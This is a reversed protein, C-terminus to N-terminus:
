DTEPKKKTSARIPTVPGSVLEELTEYCEKIKETRNLKDVDQVCDTQNNYFNLKNQARIYRKMNALGLPEYALYTVLDSGQTELKIYSDKLTHKDTDVKIKKKAKKTGDDRTPLEIEDIVDFVTIEELNRHNSKKVVTSPRLIQAIDILM